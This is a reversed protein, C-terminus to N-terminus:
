KHVDWLVAQNCALMRARTSKVSRLRVSLLLVRINAELDSANHFIHLYVIATYYIFNFFHIFDFYIGQYQSINM